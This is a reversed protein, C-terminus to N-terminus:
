LVVSRDYYRATDIVRGPLHVMLTPSTGDRLNRPGTNEKIMSLHIVSLTGRYSHEGTTDRQKIGTQRYHSRENLYEETVASVFQPNDFWDKQCQVMCDKEDRCRWAMAFGERKSCESFQRVTEVCLQTRTIAM